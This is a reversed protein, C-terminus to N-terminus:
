VALSKADASYIRGVILESVNLQPAVQSTGVIIQHEVELSESLALILLQLNHGRELEMGGDEIGDLILLRPVRFLPHKASASLLALHFAHRLFVQSSESFHATGNVRVKNDGFSWDVDRPSQFEETRPLDAKLINVLEGAVAGKAILKRNEQAASLMEIKGRLEEFEAALKTRKAQLDM